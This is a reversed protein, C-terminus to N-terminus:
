QFLSVLGIAVYKRIIDFLIKFCYFTNGITINCDTSDKALQSITCFIVDCVAPFINWKVIVIIDHQNYM